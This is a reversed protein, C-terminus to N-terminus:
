QGLGVQNLSATAPNQSQSQNQQQVPGQDWNGGPYSAPWPNTALNAAQNDPATTTPTPPIVGTPNTSQSQQPPAATYTMQGMMVTCEKMMHGRQGCHYCTPPIRYRQFNGQFNGQPYHEQYNRNQYGGSEYSGRSQNGDRGGGRGYGPRSNGRYNSSPQQRNQILNGNNPRNPPRYTMNQLAHNQDQLTQTFVKQQEALGELASALVAPVEENKGESKVTDNISTPIANQVDSSEPKKPRPPRGPGRRAYASEQPHDDDEDDSSSSDILRAKASRGHKSQKKRVEQFNIVEDVAEDITTPTKVYEVQFRAKDDGLGDLFRRLLDECRTTNDRDPHAKDYLRKLDASYEEVAEGNKQNRNSFVAGYTKPNEVRRFRNRLERVLSKYSRRVKSGLQDFVFEGAIGQFKSLMMELRQNRKWKMSNAVSKFRRYWVNWSESGTFVTVKMNKYGKDSDSDYSVDRESDDASSTTDDDSLDDVKKDNIGRASAKSKRSREKDIPM